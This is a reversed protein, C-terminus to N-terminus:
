LRANEDREEEGGDEGISQYGGSDPRLTAASAIISSSGSGGSSSVRQYGGRKGIGSAFFGDGYLFASMMWLVVVVMLVLVLSLVVGRVRHYRDQMEQSLPAWDAFREPHGAIFEATPFGPPSCGVTHTDDDPDQYLRIYDVKMKAPLNRCGKMGNPLACQCEPNTCDYCHWCSSCTHVPCPEPFGWRHSLATNFILYMPEIPIFADTLSELSTGDIGLVLDEDVYWYLYGGRGPQWEVRYVHQSEFHTPRLNMNVSIADEMYKRIKGVSPDVEPGCEQGWFGYNFAASENMTIDKYWTYSSNLRHGNKPRRSHKPIGPSVQLSSSMFATVDGQGPMEHGPMVEFIDIEASGRGQNPNLGYGPKPDCASIEQKYEIQPIDGCTDYSWPWMSMTSTEWTARALNGMMWAAPWLGGSDAHGPLEISMELVGGTFCFKNWSQLMGSSYNKTLHVPQLKGHDWEVYSAKEARSIIELMGNNTTVYEPSSNYFQMAENTNDPKHVAEFNPDKGKEFSRGDETFEDSMVLKLHKGDQRRKTTLFKADTAKDVLSSSVLTLTGILLLLTKM